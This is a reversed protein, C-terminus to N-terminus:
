GVSADPNSPVLDPPASYLGVKTFPAEIDQNM